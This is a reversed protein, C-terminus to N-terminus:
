GRKDGGTVEKGKKERKESGDELSLRRVLSMSSKVVSLLAMPSIVPSVIM